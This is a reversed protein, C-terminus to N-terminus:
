CCSVRGFKYHLLILYIPLQIIVLTGKLVLPQAGTSTWVIVCQGSADETSFAHHSPDM